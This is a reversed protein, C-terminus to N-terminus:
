VIGTRWDIAACILVFLSLAVIILYSYEKLLFTRAGMHIAEGLMKIKINQTRREETGDDPLQDPKQTIRWVLILTYLAGITAVVLSPVGVTTTDLTYYPKEDGYLDEGM